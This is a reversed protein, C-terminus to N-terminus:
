ILLEPANFFLEHPRNFYGFQLRPFEDQLRAVMKQIGIGGTEYEPYLRLYMAPDLSLNRLQIYDLQTQDILTLLENVEKPQDNVGPFVLLNISTFIGNEKCIKLSNKVDEFTYDRPRYYRHYTEELGSNVSVRIAQLGVQCLREITKPRSGNTNLNITGATTRERILRISSELVKPQMLPEGECGQGYSAVANEVQNLHPVVADAIEEPTLRYKVREQSAPFSSEPQYSICGVCESNCAPSIPIPFELRGMMANYAAPCGYELTCRSLQQWLRNNPYESLKQAVIESLDDEYYIPNWGDRFDSKFAAIWFNGDKWGVATYAWLPLDRYTNLYQVTPLLTRTYAPPAFASVAYVPERRRGIRWRDLPMIRELQSHYGVPITRPLVYLRSGYPLPIWEDAEPLISEHGSSGLALLTPHDYITGDQDAFVLHPLSSM